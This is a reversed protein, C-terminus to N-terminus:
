EKWKISCGLSNKYKGILYEAITYLERQLVEGNSTQKGSKTYVFNNLRSKHSLIFKKNEKNKIFLFFDPTCVADFNRAIEQSEDFLYPFSFQHDFAFKKMNGFSDEQNYNPDNSNIAVSAINLHELLDKTDESINKVIAKVYPCHNCIFMVLLGDRNECLKESPIFKDDINKLSFKPLEKFKHDAISKGNLLIM